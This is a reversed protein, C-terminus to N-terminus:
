GQIINKFDRWVYICVKPPAEDVNKPRAFLQVYTEANINLANHYGSKVLYVGKPNLYWFIKDKRERLPIELDLILDAECSLVM